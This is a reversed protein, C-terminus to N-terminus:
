DSEGGEEKKQKRKRFAETWKVKRPLRELKVANKECKMSCFYLVRGSKRVFLKGTGREADKGCFSCKM